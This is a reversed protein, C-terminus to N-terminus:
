LTLMLKIKVLSCHSQTDAYQITFEQIYRRIHVDIFLVHAWKRDLIAGAGIDAEGVIAGNECCYLSSYLNFNVVHM